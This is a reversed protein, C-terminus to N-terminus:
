SVSPFYQVTADPIVAVKAKDGHRNKLGQIVETWTKAWDISDHPAIWDGGVKDSYPAMVTLRKTNRPLSTRRCWARGGFNKGFSRILYHNIQGEPTAVILVMEGGESSLLPSAVGPALVMENAKSYCNAVVIDADNVMDTAYHKKALKVGQIHEEIPDGVFLATIERKLNLIVDVKVDLGAMKAAENIDQELVNGEYKGIGITSSLGLRTHNADITDMSAVGPLIIKGGGGFGSLLHPVIYGIGIKLDCSMVESNISIPTGQSSMGLPTCNEYPNHNYVLFRGMVEDGLKKRFDIGNMSGHAGIAAIFRVNDDPIGAAALEELIYPVLVASPTPRSMDDFLIAVEKKGKALERITKTGIPKHFAKSIEDDGLASADHGHMCCTIVEWSDPFDIELETDGYWALQPVRVTKSSSVM